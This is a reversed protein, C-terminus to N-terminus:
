ITPSELPSAELLVLDAACGPKVAGWTAMHGLFRVASSTATQLVQFPSLGAEAIAEVRGAARASSCRRWTMTRRAPTACVGSSVSQNAYHALDHLPPTEGGHSALREGESGPPFM